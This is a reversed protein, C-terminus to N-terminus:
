LVRHQRYNNIKETYKKRVTENRPVERMGIGELKNEKKCVYPLVHNFFMECGTEYGKKEHSKLYANFAGSIFDSLQIGVSQHSNEMNLSDKIHGYKHIFEGNNFIEHYVKRFFENKKPNIPDIFLVGLNEKKNNLQMEYRPLLEEFHMKLLSYEKIKGLNINNISYTLIVRSDKIKHLLSLFEDVFDILKSYPHQELFKFDEYEKIRRKQKQAIRVSWLYSWKIERDLPLEYKIKLKSHESKLFKWETAPFIVLSRLYFPHRILTKKSMETSFDGSEDSFGFHIM